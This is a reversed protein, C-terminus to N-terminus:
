MVQALAAFEDRGLNEARESPDIRAAELAATAADTSGAVAALTNRLTKRRQAFAAHVVDYYLTHPVDPPVRRDLRVIASDVNPIPWFARRSVSGVVRASAWYAALASPAGYAQTGPAAALREAVERQTMVILAGITPAEELAKLVVTTAIRYPLNAVLRESQWRGLDVELADAHVVEVNDIGALVERLVDVLRSDIEVAVVHAAAAALAITLSGPGPGVELVRDDPDPAAVRVMKRITNPDIVFNQGRGKSPAVGHAALLARVRRAGLLETTM